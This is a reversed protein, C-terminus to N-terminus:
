DAQLGDSDRPAAGEHYTVLWVQQVPGNKGKQWGKWRHQGRIVGVCEAFWLTPLLQGQAGNGPTVVLRPQENWWFMTVEGIVGPGIESERTLEVGDRMLQQILSYM